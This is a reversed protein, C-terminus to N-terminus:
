GVGILIRIIRGLDLLIRLCLGFGLMQRSVLFNLTQLPCFYIKGFRLVGVRFKGWNVVVSESIIMVWCCKFVYEITNLKSRGWVGGLEEQLFWTEISM